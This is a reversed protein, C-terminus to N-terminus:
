CHVNTFHVFIPQFDSIDIWEMYKGQYTAGTDSVPVGDPFDHHLDAYGIELAPSLSVTLLAHLLKYYRASM